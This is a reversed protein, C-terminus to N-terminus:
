PGLNALFLILLMVIIGIMSYFFAEIYSAPQSKRDYKKDKRKQEESRADVHDFMDLKDKQKGRIAVCEDLRDLLAFYEDKTEKIIIRFESPNNKKFEKWIDQFEHFNKIIKDVSYDLYGNGLPKPFTKMSEAIKKLQSTYENRLKNKEEEKRKADLELQLDKAKKDNDPKSYLKTYSISLSEIAQIAHEVNAKFFEKGHHYKHLKEHVLREAKQMNEFLAYYEVIFPTPTSTDSSLEKAREDPVKISMGVKILGPMSENSMVYVFGKRAM